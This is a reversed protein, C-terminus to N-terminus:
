VKIHFEDSVREAICITGWLHGKVKRFLWVYLQWSFPCYFGKRVSYYLGLGFRPDFVRLGILFWRYVLWFLCCGGSVVAKCQPPLNKWLRSCSMKFPFFHKCKCKSCFDKTVYLWSGSVSTFVSREWLYVFHKRVEKNCSCLQRYLIFWVVYVRHDHCVSWFTNWLISCVNKQSFEIEPVENWKFLTVM